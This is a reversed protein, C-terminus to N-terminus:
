LGIIEKMPKIIVQSVHFTLWKRIKKFKKLKVFFHPRENDKPRMKMYERKVHLNMGFLRYIGM